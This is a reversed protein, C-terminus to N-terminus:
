KVPDLYKEILKAGRSRNRSFHELEYNNPDLMWERVEKSRPGYYRGTENWWKVADIKHGMEMEGLSYWIGDQGKVIINGDGLDKVKGEAKM